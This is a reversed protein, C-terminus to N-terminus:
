MNDRVWVGVCGSGGLLVCVCVQRYPVSHVSDPANSNTPSALPHQVSTPSRSYASQWAQGFGHGDHDSMSTGTYGFPSTEPVAYSTPSPPVSSHLSILNLKLHPPPTARTRLRPLSSSGTVTVTRQLLCVQSTLNPITNRYTDNCV